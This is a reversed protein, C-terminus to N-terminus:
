NRERFDDPDPDPYGYDYFEYGEEEDSLDWCWGKMTDKEDGTMDPCSDIADYVKQHPDFSEELDCYYPIGVSHDYGENFYAEVRITEGIREKLWLAVKEAKDTDTICETLEDVKIDKYALHTCGAWRGGVMGNGDNSAYGHSSRKIIPRTM